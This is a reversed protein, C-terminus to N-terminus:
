KLRIWEMTKWQHVKAAHDERDFGMVMKRCAGCKYLGFDTFAPQAPQVKVQEVQASEPKGDGRELGITIV